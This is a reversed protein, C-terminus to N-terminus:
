PAPLTFLVAAEGRQAIREDFLKLILDRRAMLGDIEPETLLDDMTRELEERTLSRMGACM